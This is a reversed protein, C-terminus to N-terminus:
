EKGGSVTPGVVSALFWAMACRPHVPIAHTRRTRHRRSVRELGLLDGIRGRHGSVAIEGLDPTSLGGKHHASPMASM